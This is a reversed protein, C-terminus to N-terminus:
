LFLTLKQLLCIHTIHHAQSTVHQYTKQVHSTINILCHLFQNFFYSYYNVKMTKGNGEWLEFGEKKFSPPPKFTGFIGLFPPHSFKKFTPPITLPSETPFPPISNTQTNKRAPTHFIYQSKIVDQDTNWNGNIYTDTVTEM